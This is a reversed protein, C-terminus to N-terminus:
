RVALQQYTSILEKWRVEVDCRERGAVYAALGELHVHWGAAYSPLDEVPLGRESIVLITKDGEAVLTLEIIQEDQEGDETTLLTLHKPPECVEVRGTGKWGSTFRARFQGGVRLDGSVDAIWRALRKPQTCAEWLDDISTAFIDEVRVSGRTEDIAEMTAIIRM